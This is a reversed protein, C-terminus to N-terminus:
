NGKSLAELREPLTIKFEPAEKQILKNVSENIKSDMKLVNRRKIVGQERAQMVVVLSDM